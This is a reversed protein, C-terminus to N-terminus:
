APHLAYVPVGRPYLIGGRLALCRGPGSWTHNIDVRAGYAGAAIVHASGDHYGIGGGQSAQWNTKGLAHARRFPPPRSPSVYPHRARSAFPSYRIPASGRPRSTGHEGSTM